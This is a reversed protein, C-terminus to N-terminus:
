SWLARYVWGMDVAKAGQNRPLISVFYYEIIVINITMNIFTRENMSDIHQGSYFLM